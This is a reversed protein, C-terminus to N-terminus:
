KDDTIIRQDNPIEKTTVSYPVPKGRMINWPKKDVFGYRQTDEGFYVITPKKEPPFSLKM